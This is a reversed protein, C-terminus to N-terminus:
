GHISGSDGANCTSAKSESVGPFNMNWMQIITHYGCHNGM